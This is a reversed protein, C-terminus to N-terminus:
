YDLWTKKKGPNHRPSASFSCQCPKASEQVIGQRIEKFGDPINPLPNKAGCPTISLALM